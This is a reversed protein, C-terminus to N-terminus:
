PLGLIKHTQLSLKWRPQRPLFALAAALHEPYRPGWEPQLSLHTFDLRALAALESEPQGRYVVKLEHGRTVVPDPLKPSVCVWDLLDAIEDLSRTGNTEIAAQYGAARTALLLARDLQLAPEGGTFCLWRPGPHSRIRDLLAEETLKDGTAFDTDCWLPCSAGTRTADRKRDPAKGTWLNCGTFRVFVMPLGAQAGEGQLTPFIERVVYSM